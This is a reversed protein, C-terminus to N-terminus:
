WYASNKLQLWKGPDCSECYGEKLHGTYRVWKPTYHDGEYRLKQRRPMAALAQNGHDYTTSPPLYDNPSLMYNEHAISENTTGHNDMTSKTRKRQQQQMWHASTPIPESISSVPVTYTEDVMPRKKAQKLSSTTFNSCSLFCNSYLNKAMDETMPKGELFGSQNWTMQPIEPKYMQHDIFVNPMSSREKHIPQQQQPVYTESYDFFPQQQQQQHHQTDHSSSCVSFRRYPEAPGKISSPTGPQGIEIGNNRDENISSSESPISRQIMADKGSTGLDVDDYAFM